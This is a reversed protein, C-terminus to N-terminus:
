LLKVPYDSAVTIKWTANVNSKELCPVLRYQNLEGSKDKLQVEVSVQDSIYYSTEAIIDIKDQYWSYQPIQHKCVLGIMGCSLNEPGTRYFTVLCKTNPNTPQIIVYPNSAQKYGGTTSATWKGTSVLTNALTDEFLKCLYISLFYQKMDSDFEMWFVGDDKDAYGLQTKLEPTWNAADHDSWKGKWEGRGWTNRIECLRITRNNSTVEKCRLLSYAHYAVLGSTDENDIKSKTVLGMIWNFKTFLKLQQWLEMGNDKQFQEALPIHETAGGSLRKLAIAPDRSALARYSGFTKAFAKELLMPWIENQNKSTAFQPSGGKTPFYDDIIVYRWEGQIFLKISYVGYESYKQPYILREVLEPRKTLSAVGQCYWCNGVYGQCMDDMSIGDLYVEPSDL